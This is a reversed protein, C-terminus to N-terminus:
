PSQRSGSVPLGPHVTMVWQRISYGLAVRDTGKGEDDSFIHRPIPFEIDPHLGWAKLWSAYAHLALLSKSPRMTSGEPFKVERGDLDGFTPDFDGFEPDLEGVVEDTSRPTIHLARAKGALSVYRLDNDFLHFSMRGQADVEICLKGRKFAWAVPKYLMLGNPVDDINMPSTLLPQFKRWSPQFIRTVGVDEHPLNDGTAMDFLCEQDLQGYARKMGNHFSLLGEDQCQQVSSADSKFDLIRMMNM